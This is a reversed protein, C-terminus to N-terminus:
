EPARIDQHEPARNLLEIVEDTVDLGELSFIIQRSDLILTYGKEKGFSEVVQRIEAFMERRKEIVRSRIDLDYERFLQGWARKKEEIIGVRREREEEKLLAERARLEAELKGIEERKEELKKQKAEQEKRLFEEAEQVKPHGDIARAIDVYGIKLRVGEPSEGRARVEVALGLGLLSVVVFFAIVTKM